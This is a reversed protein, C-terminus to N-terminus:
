ITEEKYELYYLILTISNLVNTIIKRDKEYFLKEIDVICHSMYNRIHYYIMLYKELTEKETEIIDHLKIFFTDGKDFEGIKNKLATLFHSNPKIKKLCDFLGLKENDPIKRRILEEVNLIVGTTVSIVLSENRKNSYFRKNIEIISDLLEIYKENSTLKEVVEVEKIELGLINNILNVVNNNAYYFKNEKVFIVLDKYVLNIDTQQSGLRSNNVSNVIEGYKLDFSRMLINITNLIYTSELNWMLKYKENKALLFHLRLLYKLFKILEEQSYKNKNYEKFIEYLEERYLFSRENNDFVFDIDSNRILYEKFITESLRRFYDINELFEKQNHIDFLFKGIVIYFFQWIPYLKKDKKCGFLEQTLETVCNNKDHNYYAEYIDIKIIKKLNEHSNRKALFRNLLISFNQVEFYLDEFLLSKFEEKSYSSYINTEKYFKYFNDETLFPSGNKFLFNDNLDIEFLSM